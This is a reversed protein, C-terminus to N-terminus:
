EATPVYDIFWKYYLYDLYGDAQMSAIAENVPAVLESGKAFIVGMEDQSIPDGLLMLPTESTSMFGAAASADATIADVDGAILAQVLAGFENFVMRREEPVVGETVFFGSSGQQVGLILESNAVFEDLNAFRDEDGRVLLYQDLNIYPDSFDVLELREPYISIGNVAMDYQGEGVAQMMVDWSTTEYVPTCNLRVCLENVMDYEYGMAQGTTSEEFQFPLYLNEIAVSVEAGELDPLSDYILSTEPSFDMFWKYYLYDLFGDAQMSAIAENVPAVLESGKAFIVGMEDQSIPDGLLMLPTESTSMFGAAASADAVVADVDGAILAQVLAGFENFVMRREEPVVGETV